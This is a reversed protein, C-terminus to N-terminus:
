PSSTLCPPSAQTLWCLLQGLSKESATPGPNPLPEAKGEGVGQAKGVGRRKQHSQAPAAATWTAPKSTQWTYEQDAASPGPLSYGHPAEWPICGYAGEMRCAGLPAGRSGLSSFLLLAKERPWAGPDWGGIARAGALTRQEGCLTRHGSIGPPPLEQEQFPARRILGGAIWVWLGLTLPSSAGLCQSRLPPSPLVYASSLIAPSTLPFSCLLSPTGPFFCLQSM